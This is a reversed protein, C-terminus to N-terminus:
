WSLVPLRDLLFSRIHARPDNVHVFVWLTAWVTFHACALNLGWWTYDQNLLRRGPQRGTWPLGPVMTVIGINQSQYWHRGFHCPKSDLGVRHLFLWLSISVESICLKTMLGTFKTKFLFFLITNVKFSSFEYYLFCQLVDNCFSLSCTHCWRFSM